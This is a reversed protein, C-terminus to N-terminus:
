YTYWTVRIHIHICSEVYVIFLSRMILGLSLGCYCLVNTVLIETLLVYDALLQVISDSNKGGKHLLNTAERYACSMWFWIPIIVLVPGIIDLMKRCRSSQPYSWIYSSIIIKMGPNPFFNVGLGINWTLWYICYFSDLLENGSQRMQMQSFQM